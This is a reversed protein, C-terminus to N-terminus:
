DDGGAVSFRPPYRSPGSQIDALGSPEPPVLGPLTGKQFKDLLALVSEYADQVDETMREAGQLYYLAVTASFRALLTSQTGPPIGYSILLADADALCRDIADMALVIGAREAVTLGSLHAGTEIFVRLAQDASPFEHDAPVALQALRVANSRALLDARTAFM